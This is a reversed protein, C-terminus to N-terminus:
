GIKGQVNSQVLILIKIRVILVFNFIFSNCIIFNGALSCNNFDSNHFFIFGDNKTDFTWGCHERKRFRIFLAPSPSTTPRNLSFHDLRFPTHTRPAPDCCTQSFHGLLAPDSCPDSCSQSPHCDLRSGTHIHAM